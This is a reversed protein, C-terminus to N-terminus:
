RLPQASEAYSFTILVVCFLASTDGCDVFALAMKNGCLRDRLTTSIRNM